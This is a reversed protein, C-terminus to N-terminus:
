ENVVNESQPRPQQIAQIMTKSLWNMVPKGGVTLYRNMEDKANAVMVTHGLPFRLQFPKLFRNIFGKSSEATNTTSPADLLGSGFERLLEDATFETKDNAWANNKRDERSNESLSEGDDSSSGSSSFRFIHPVHERMDCLVKTWGLRDLQQSWEQYRKDPDTEHRREHEQYSELEGPPTTLTMVITDPPPGNDNEDDVSVLTHPSGSDLAWFAATPTPVQFDTGYVNAYAIRQQFNQLPRLYREQFTLEELVSSFRFLDRGTEDLVTAIPYEMARPLRIYTHQSVGLHPTATTVFVMPDISMSSKDHNELTWDIDALARRAYLGGLSNGCISLTLQKANPNNSAIYRLLSNIEGALRTGGADIGDTTKGQNCLASHVVYRHEIDDDGKTTNEITSQLAQRISNMELSNGLWGHVLVVAHIALETGSKDRTTTDELSKYTSGGDQRLLRDWDYSFPDTEPHLLPKIEDQTFRRMLSSRKSGIWALVVPLFIYLFSRLMSSATMSTKNNPVTPSSTPTQQEQKSSM